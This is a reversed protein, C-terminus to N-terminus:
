VSKKALLKEKLEPDFTKTRIMEIEEKYPPFDGVWPTELIKPIDKFKEDHCIKHLTNFGINGEGVNAHRDKHFALQNKSDNVHIVQLRNIGVIEDFEKMVNDYNNVIDYGADFIHCTDMCVGVRSQDKIGDLLAKIEQFTRGVETGKGAMTEFAIVVDAEKTNEIIENVTSEYQSYNNPSRKLLDNMVNQKTDETLAVIRM